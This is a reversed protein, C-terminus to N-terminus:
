HLVTNPYERYYMEFSQMESQPDHDNTILDHYSIKSLDGVEATM